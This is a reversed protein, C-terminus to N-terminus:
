GRAAMVMKPAIVTLVGDNLEVNVGAVDAHGPFKVHRMAKIGYGRGDEAGEASMVMEESCITVRIQSPNFGRLMVRVRYASETQSLDAPPTCLIQREAELWDDWDRGHQAGRDEFLEYARRAVSAILDDHEQLAALMQYPHEVREVSLHM